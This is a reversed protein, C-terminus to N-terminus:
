GAVRDRLRLSPKEVFLHLGYAWWFSLALLLVLSAPWVVGMSWGRSVHLWRALPQVFWWFLPTHVLYVGYGLTALRRFAKASLFRQIRGERGNLILLVLAFYMITTVTGWNFVALLWGKGFRNPDLLPVLCAVVVAGLLTRAFRGELWRAIPERWHHQVFALIIGAVLTDYRSHSPFYLAQAIALPTWEGSHSLFIGLRVLLASAWMMVLVALRARGTRLKRLLFFLFPVVLYFKEEVALSWGWPMVADHVHQYDTLYLYEYLVPFGSPLHWIRGVIYLYTLALYYSPFTRFARRLYFRRVHQSGSTEISRLLISGILFGSLVFFLDMGFFINMSRDAWASDLAITPDGQINQTIHFQVVTVIALVRMGHLAPYRNDLLDLEFFKRIPSTIRGSERRVRAESGGSAERAVPVSTSM